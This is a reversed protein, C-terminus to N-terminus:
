LLDWRKKVDYIARAIAVENDRTEPLRPIMWNAPEGFAPDPDTWRVPLPVHLPKKRGANLLRSVEAQIEEATRKERM